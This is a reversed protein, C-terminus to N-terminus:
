VLERDLPWTKTIAAAMNDQPLVRLPAPWDSGVALGASRAAEACEEVLAVANQFRPIELAEDETESRWIWRQDGAQLECGSRLSFARGFAGVHAAIGIAVLLARGPASASAERTNVRRLAAFSVTAQQHIERFSVPAATGDVPVQGHGIEALSDKSRNGKRAKAEVTWTTLDNEDYSVAEDISQNYPDGKLGATTTLRSNERHAHLGEVNPITAPAIGIIESTWSRALKTQQRKKGLHSQWFGYLLAQPMWEFLAEPSDATAAFVSRGVETRLFPVGDIQADRLYADANRHPFEFASLEIPLHVPLTKVASLDLVIDPLGLRERFSLLAAELRNAQSPVNDIVIVPTAERGEGDGWWRIDHQYTGGEYIAPKVPAGPGAGPELATRISIASEFSHDDCADILRSASLEGM